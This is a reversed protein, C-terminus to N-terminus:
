SGGGNTNAPIISHQLPRSRYIHIADEGSGFSIGMDLTELITDWIDNKVVQKAKNDQVM